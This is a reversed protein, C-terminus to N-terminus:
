SNLNQPLPNVPYALALPYADRFRLRRLHSAVVAFGVQRLPLVIICLAVVRRPLCEDVELEEATPRANSWRHGQSIGCAIIRAHTMPHLAFSPCTAWHLVLGFWSAACSSKRASGVGHGRARM